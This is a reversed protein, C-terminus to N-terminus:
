FCLNPNLLRRLPVTLNLIVLTVSVEVLSSVLFNLAALAILLLKFNIDTIDYLDLLQRFFQGPYIVLWTEVSFLLLLLCLFIM